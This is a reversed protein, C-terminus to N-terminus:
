SYVGLVAVLLHHYICIVLGSAGVPNDNRELMEGVALYKLKMSTAVAHELLMNRVYIVDEVERPYMWWAILM